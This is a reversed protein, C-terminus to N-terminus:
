SKVAGATLGFALKRHVLLFMIVIPLSTLTAAAMLPGWLTGRVTTFSALWITLTQKEPSSLLIYAYLYDNWSQIFAYISTAVLGPAILPFLIRIFAGFRSLGDVMAAEELEKPIGLIFGRLTWIAFPLVFILHAIVVGSLKNVQHYRSLLVYLPIILASLPVMQIGIILIVFARRGYFRFRALALAALFSLVTSIVVVAAVIKFSNLAVDWFNPYNVAERFNRFTAPSPIFKPKLSFIDQGPKFATSVMWYAPFIMLAFVVIATLNLAARRALRKKTMRRRKVVKRPPAATRAAVSM